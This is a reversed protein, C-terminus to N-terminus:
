PEFGHRAALAFDGGKGQATLVDRLEDLKALVGDLVSSLPKRQACQQAGGLWPLKEMEDHVALAPVDTYVNATLNADSHGLIEQAVRQSIGARVGMTQWTKRFSHFHVVRGLSDRREIGARKLDSRLADYSPFEPFVSDTPQAGAPLFARLERVVHPHLPVARKEADKMTGERFLAYPRAEDLHLDSVVLAAVESRRQATYLLAMYAMRRSASVVAFLQLLEDQTYARCPRVQKGRTAVGGVKALPNREVREVRVLWNLLAMVSTQYEKKTKASRQLVSRWALFTAPTVAALTAWRCERVVRKIRAVTEKVHSPALDRGRLYTEYERVLVDLPAFFTDRILRNPALGERVRQAEVVIDRLRKRAVMEDPTDLAVRKVREGRALSYRGSFLRARVRKGNVRRSPRFVYEIMKSCWNADSQVACTLRWSFM